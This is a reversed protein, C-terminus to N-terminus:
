TSSMLVDNELSPVNVNKPSAVQPPPFAKQLLDCTPYKKQLKKLWISEDGEIFVDLLSKAEYGCKGNKRDWGM